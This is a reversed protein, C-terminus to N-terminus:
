KSKHAPMKKEDNTLRYNHITIDILVPRNLAEGKSNRPTVLRSSPYTIRGIQKHTKIVNAAKALKSIIDATYNHQILLGSSKDFHFEQVKNHTPFNDPFTAQLFGESKEDWLIKTSQLLNPLTFYNWFAYNAFYAMDLDDWYFLRRGFPFFDRANKRKSITNGNADLLRVDNEELVGSINKDKGIPTITSFPRGIEMKIKTHDFFPRRKLTFALGKVSVDAEIFKYRQWLDVGGYAEIAKKATATLM